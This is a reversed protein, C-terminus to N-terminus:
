TIFPFYQNRIFTLVDFEILFITFFISEVVLFILSIFIRIIM